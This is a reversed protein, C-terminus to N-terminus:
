GFFYELEPRLGVSGDRGEELPASVGCVYCHSPVIANDVDYVLPALFNLLNHQRVLGLYQSNIPVFVVFQKSDKLLVKIEHSQPRGQGSVCQLLDFCVGRLSLRGPQLPRVSVGCQCKPSVFPRDYEVALLVLLLYGCHALM